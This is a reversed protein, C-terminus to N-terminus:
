TVQGASSTRLDLTAAATGAQAIAPTNVAGFLRNVGQVGVVSVGTSLTAAAASSAIGGSLGILAGRYSITTAPNTVWDSAALPPFVSYVPDVVPPIRGANPVQAIVSISGLLAPNLATTAPPIAWGRWENITTETLSPQVFFTLGGSLDDGAGSPNTTDKYFFPAILGGAQQYLPEGPDLMPPVVPNGCNLIEFNNVTDLISEQETTGSGNTQINSQYTATLSSSGPRSTADFGSTNYPPSAPAQWYQTGFDPECNKSTVRFTYGTYTIYPISPRPATLIQFTDLHMMAFQGVIVFSKVPFDLHIRVAGEDGAATTEKSVHIYIDNLRFDSDVPVPQAKNVDTAIPKTWKRQFYEIWHLQLKLQVQPLAGAINNQLAGFSLSTVLTPDTSGSSSPAQAQQIFTVWFINLRGKWYALVIHDGDITCNVAVWGSWSGNAYTRYFYNHPHGYTRGLVHLTTTGDPSTAQDLYTAVIDLRARIDLGQLYAFFADEVLDNSVNGQLLSSQLSQFLDTADLRLEPIMWNEPFLFIERNAQWVRYRKMWAWWDADIANPAVDLRSDSNGNELNLLCRQVFTQVSSMALRLRSTQVVPEMGPDVLFYEFLQNESGLGLTQLLYAVLADRKKQRLKNFVSQAIPLWVDGTYQARVANKLNAAIVDPTPSSAPPSSSAILTAAALSAVPIGILQLLQLAQWIRRIGKNNGFDGTAMVRRTSGTVTDTILGFYEAVARVTAADRRTLNAFATWPTAPNSNTDQSGVSESFPQGVNAFVNIFGDTGGAPGKRLDAYDALALFQAFLATANTLSDDAPRTPLSSLKFNAFQASKGILYSLERIDLGTVQLIQLVKALLTRARTFDTISQQSYLVIQSLPGKPISEGQILLSAGKAGLNTFDVSFHYLAGGALQVFQSIEANDQTAAPSPPIIPDPFLATPDPADLQFTVAAGSNGLEAFFRYPGDTPVQLYGEFHARPAGPQSTTPDTTDVSAASGTLLPNGSSDYYTATVGSQGMSLFAGLLSKGPDGPDSLLAADTVLAETLTPDAALTATLAQLVFQRSLKQALLPLFVSMLQAKVLTQQQTIPLGTFPEIHTDFDAPLLTILKGGLSQFLQHAQTNVKSLLSALAASAPLLAALPATMADTVVGASTLTQVQAVPDYSFQLQPVPDTITGAQQSASLAAFFANSDIQNAATVAPLTDTYTQTSTWMGLLTGILKKYAPLAQSQVSNMLTLLDGSANVTRLSEKKADTLVGRYGLWQLKDTQDYSLSLASDAQVLADAPIAAALPTLVAEYQVLSAWVGLLDGVRQTLSQASLAQIADLMANFVSPQNAAPNQTELQGKRWDLLLGQFSVTQTQTTSDYQFTLTPDGAFPSPDLAAALPSRTVTFTRTNTLLAFLSKLVAAPLLASLEQDILSEALNALNAPVANQSQIQRLGTGVAQILTTLVNVDLQYKGVPDFQQRLLYQLDEVSFGSNQVVGAQKVFLLTQNLLVDDSLHVLPTGSLGQFPNLASLVRLSILDSVDMQLCKALTSYRYCISLNTLSFSPVTANQGNILLTVTTVGPGADAFIAAIEAATLGLVGQVATQHASFTGLAGTGPLDLTQVPFLGRPDDFAGDNNLVSPVLFLQAYLPNQGQVQLNSWFPLLATRGLIPQLRKNLDDLHALYILATQWAASFAADFTASGWAPLAAPFFMQLARDTEDLSWGLKKWLRVFLNLKVFDLPTAASTASNDAYQLTTDTFNCGSDPDALVLVTKSYTTPLLTTLWSKADFQSAANQGKYRATIAALLSEFATKQDAALPAYGPQNTYSFADAVDIGLHELEFTVAYLAPNLFGTTVLDTLDQYTLGLTQALTKASSLPAILYQSADTPDIKGHLATNADTYGYLKYWNASLPTIAAATDTLVAYECPALGLSEALIQSRYYPYANGDPFLELNEVPRLTELVQTLPTNFYGLCARVTETWLDFPLELPYVAQELTTSYVQPLIHQPEATLEATTASGTDYAYGADLHTNAIYYELIENVIDIYPMATNSNECSLPLAGLDPRRGAIGATTSGILVDLPTFGQPNAASNRLFELVDVFYAAPSLVSRCDECQCFDLNGFLSAMSPFQQVISNKADQRASASGSGSLAAIGPITDLQNATTFANLTVSSVTQAQGYVLHAEGPPFENIFKGIFEDKTYSAIDRASTFGLRMAAQLSESSPTVQFLRHLTKLGETSTADLGPLNAAPASELFTNLPTRGLSYGLPAAARLFSTVATPSGQNLSLDKRELMRAVTRTPFSTRVKRALAGSYAALRDATGSGAYAAPILSGLAQVGAAGALATLTSTWTDAKDYDKDALQEPDSGAGIQRQLSQTLPLSNSTLYLFKGQLKLTDLTAAPLKLVAAQTWLDPATPNSFYLQAFAALQTSDTIHAALLDSFRSVMGPAVLALQTTTAFKQFASTAASIQQETMSVVGAQSAKTLAQSVVSAPTVSLLSPDSPLGTRLLAYLVDQGLGATQAGTAATAALALLRADWSTSQNLLTLDQRASGEQALALRAVGGISKEMDSSLRQFEAALPQISAPVVLNLVEQSQANFKTNSIVVETGQPDVARLQLNGGQGGRTAWTLSYNGQGDSKTEGTKTNQGAFGITYLRVTIGSAPLGNDFVLSGQVVGQSVPPPGTTVSTPAATQAPTTPLVVQSAISAPAVSVAPLPSVPNAAAAAAPSMSGSLGLLSATRDDLTGTVPLGNQQQLQQIARRTAPGFYRRNLESAPLQFGKQTLADQLSAVSEGLAGIALPANPM